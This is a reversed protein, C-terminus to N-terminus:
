SILSSAALALQVVVVGSALAWLGAVAAWLTMAAPGIVGTRWAGLAENGLMMPGAAAAFGLSALLRDRGVFPPRFGPRKGTALELLSAAIGSLTLGAALAYSMLLLTHM